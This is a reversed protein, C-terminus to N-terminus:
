VLYAGILIGVVMALVCSAIIGAHEKVAHEVEMAMSIAADHEDKM